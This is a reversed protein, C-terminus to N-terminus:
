KFIGRLSNYVSKAADIFDSIYKEWLNWNKGSEVIFHKAAALVWAKKNAGNGGEAQVVDMFNTVEEYIARGVTVLSITGSLAQSITTM